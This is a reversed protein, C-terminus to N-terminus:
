RDVTKTVQRSEQAKILHEEGIASAKMHPSPCEMAEQKISHSTTVGKKASMSLHRHLMGRIPTWSLGKLPRKNDGPGQNHVLRVRIEGTNIWPTRRSRLHWPGARNWQQSIRENRAKRWHETLIARCRSGAIPCTQRGEKWSKRLILRPTTGMTWLGEQM